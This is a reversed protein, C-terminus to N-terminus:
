DMQRAEGNGKGAASELASGTKGSELSLVHDKPDGSDIRVADIKLHVILESGLDEISNVVVPITPHSAGSPLRSDYLDEPRVWF